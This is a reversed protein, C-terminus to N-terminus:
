QLIRVVQEAMKQLCQDNSHHSDNFETQECNVYAPNIISLYKVNEDDSLQKLAQDMQDLLQAIKPDSQLIQYTEPHYPPRVLLINATLNKYKQVLKKLRKIVDRDLENWNSMQHMNRALYSEAIQLKEEPSPLHQQCNEFHGDYDRIYIDKIDNDVFRNIQDPECFDSIRMNVLRPVQIQTVGNSQIVYRLTEKTTVYSLLDKFRIWKKKMWLWQQLFSRHEYQYETYEDLLSQWRESKQNKNLFWPDLGIVINEPTCQKKELLVYLAELDEISAGSFWMNLMSQLFFTQKLGGVTSSGMIMLKPCTSASQLRGKVWLRQDFARDSVLIQNPIQQAALKLVIGQTKTGAIDIKANMSIILLLSGALAMCFIM